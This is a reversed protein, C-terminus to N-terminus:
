INQKVKALHFWIQYSLHKYEWLAMFTKFNCVTLFTIVHIERISGCKYRLKTLDPSFQM